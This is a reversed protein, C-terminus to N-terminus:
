ITTSGTCKDNKNIYCEKTSDWEYEMGIRARYKPSSDNAITGTIKAKNSNETTTFRWQAKIKKGTDKCDVWYNINGNSDKTVNSISGKIWEDDASAYNEVYVVTNSDLKSLLELKLLSSYDRPVKYGGEIKLAKLLDELKSRFLM